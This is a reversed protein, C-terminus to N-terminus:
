YKQYLLNSKFFPAIFKFGNLQYAIKRNALEDVQEWDIIAGLEVGEFCGTEMLEDAQEKGQSNTFYSTNGFTLQNEEESFPWEFDFSQDEQVEEEADSCGVLGILSLVTLGM